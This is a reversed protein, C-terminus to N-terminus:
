AGRSSVQHYIRALRSARNKRSSRNERVMVSAPVEHRRLERRVVSLASEAITIEDALIALANQDGGGRADRHRGTLEHLNDGAQSYLRWLTVCVPCTEVM